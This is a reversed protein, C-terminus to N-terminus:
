RCTATTPASGSSARARRPSESITVINSYSAAGDHKSAMPAKGDVGMIPRDNRGINRTLDPSTMWTDGRDYRSSCGSPASISRRPNHPSLIFPTNWYFRFNTGPPPPPVINGNAAGPGFGFQALIAPISAKRAPRCSSGGRGAPGRPRISTTTGRGLDLATPPATRRNRTSSAGTPRITRRHLLRRRRRRPVLRLEPHRQQQADREPRVLQRQGAPRRLRLVAEAHRRQDRLVPRRAMPTSSSGPRARTTASTSGATTASWSTTTTRASQDLDRPPRQARPGAVQRWTKGGDVTKFFPAGGQYAIEPNTPDVRIQSYYMSRDGDTRCSGGPRAATTRDGSAPSTRIRRPLRGRRTRRRWRRRTGAGAAVLTGDDNVGAGTGGSPGVEISAYITSPKSRAIDLGIRGIIPNAPLGNGTLKTWTKAATPRRGSAAARAAATSAGRSRAAASVVGRLAREPEVSGDRRRHLRHRQRHVQHEDLDQRRRDDQLPRAGPEPRVPARRGRRLRHESGESPGRHARHEADGEPRHVDCRRAPTPRSTSAPASRRARATTRSAPASTSSTPTRRRSPSTASRRSRTARRLDADLDHRQQHDELRRRDRVRRLYIRRTARSSRSTTSAAAWTPRASRAGSSRAQPDSRRDSQDAAAPPARSRSFGQAMCAASASLACVRDGAWRWCGCM